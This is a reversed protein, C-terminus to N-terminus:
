DSNRDNDNDVKELWKKNTVQLKRSKFAIIATKYLGHM